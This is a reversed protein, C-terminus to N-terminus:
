RFEMIPNRGTLELVNNYIRAMIVGRAIFNFLNYAKSKTCDVDSNLLPVLFIYKYLCLM